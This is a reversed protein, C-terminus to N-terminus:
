FPPEVAGLPGSRNTGPGCGPQEDALTWLRATSGPVPVPRFSDRKASYILVRVSQPPIGTHAAIYPISVPQGNMRELFRRVRDFNSESRRAPKAPQPAPPAPDNRDAGVQLSLVVRRLEAVSDLLRNAVDRLFEAAKEIVDLRDAHAPNTALMIVDGRVDGFASQTYGRRRIGRTRFLQFPPLAAVSRLAIGCSWRM